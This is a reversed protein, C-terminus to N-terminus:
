KEIIDFHKLLAEVDYYSFDKFRYGAKTKIAEALKKSKERLEGDITTVNNSTVFLNFNEIKYNSVKNIVCKHENTFRSNEIIKGEYPADKKVYQIYNGSVTIDAKLRVVDRYATVMKDCYSVDVCRADFYDDKPAYIYLDRNRGKYIGYYDKRQTPLSFNDKRNFDLKRGLGIKGAIHWSLRDISFYDERLKYKSDILNVSNQLYTHIDINNKDMEISKAGTYSATFINCDQFTMYVGNEDYLYLDRYKDHAYEGYYNLFLRLM